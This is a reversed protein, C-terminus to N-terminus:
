SEAATPLIKLSPQNPTTNVKRNIFSVNQYESFPLWFLGLNHFFFFLGLSATVCNIGSIKM